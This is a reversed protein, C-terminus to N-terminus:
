GDSTYMERGPFFVASHITKVHMGYHAVICELASFMAGRRVTLVIAIGFM